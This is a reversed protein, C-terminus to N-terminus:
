GLNRQCSYNHSAQFYIIQRSFALKFIVNEDMLVRKRGEVNESKEGIAELYNKKRLIAKKENEM